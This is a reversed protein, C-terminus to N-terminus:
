PMEEYRWDTRYSNVSFLSELCTLAPSRVVRVLVSWIIDNKVEYRLRNKKEKLCRVWGGSRTSAIAITVTGDNRRFGGGGGGGGGV